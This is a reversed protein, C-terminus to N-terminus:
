RPIDFYGQIDFFHFTLIKLLFFSSKLRESEASKPLDTLGPSKKEKKRPALSRCLSYNSSLSAAYNVNLLGREWVRPFLQEERANKYVTEKWLHCNVDKLDVRYNKNTALSVRARPVYMCVRARVHYM